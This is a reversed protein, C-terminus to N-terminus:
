LVSRAKDIIKMNLAKGANTAWMFDLHNYGDIEFHETRNHLQSLTWKVDPRASLTDESGSVMVMPVSLRTLDYEPPIESGYKEVNRRQGYDYMRFHKNNVFQFYQLMNKTSTGAPTHAVYVPLRTENLFKRDQGTIITMVTKCVKPMWWCITKQLFASWKSSPYFERVGFLKFLLRLRASWGALTRTALNVNRLRSVPALGFFIKIKAQLAPNQSFGAFGMMSGQSYGVYFIQQQQTTNVVYDIMAPLDYRAHEDFSFDWFDKSHVGYKIHKKSYTNGRVNGLWVDFGHDALMFGLSQHPLNVVWDSSSSMLAHQVLFVPRQTADEGRSSNSNRGHPIRHLGLVYGDETVTHHTEAPYGWYKILEPTPLYTEPLSAGRAAVVSALLLLLM